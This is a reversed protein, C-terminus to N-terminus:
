FIYKDIYKNYKEKVPAIKKWTQKSYLIYYIGRLLVNKTHKQSNVNKHSKRM